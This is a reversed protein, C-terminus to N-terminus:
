GCGEIKGTPTSSPTPEIVINGSVNGNGVDGSGTSGESPIHRTALGGSTPNGDVTSIVGMPIIAGSELRGMLVTGSDGFKYSIKALSKPRSILFGKDGIEITTSASTNGYLGFIQPLQLYGTALPITLGEITTSSSSNFSFNGSVLMRGLIDAQSGTLIPKWLSRIIEKQANVQKDYYDFGKAFDFGTEHQFILSIAINALDKNACYDNKPKTPDDCASLKDLMLAHARFFKLTSLNLYAREWEKIDSQVTDPLRSSTYDENMEMTDRLVKLIKEDDKTREEPAPFPFANMVLDEMSSCVQESDAKAHTKTFNQCWEYAAGQDPGYLDTLIAEGTTKPLFQTLSRMQTFPTNINKFGDVLQYNGLGNANLKSTDYGIVQVKVVRSLDICHSATWFKLYNPLVLGQQAALACYNVELNKSDAMSALPSSVQTTMVYGGIVQKASYRSAFSPIDSQTETIESALKSCAIPLNRSCSVMLGALLFLLTGKTQM